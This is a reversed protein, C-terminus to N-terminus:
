FLWNLLEEKKNKFEKIGPKYYKEFEFFKIFDGKKKEFEPTFFFIKNKYEEKIETNDLLTYYTYFLINFINNKYNSFEINKYNGLKIGIVKDVNKKLLIEYPIDEKIGGDVFYKEEIEYPPLIGPISISAMIADILPGEKFYIKTRDNLNTAVIILPIKLDNFTKDGFFNEKFYKKIKEGKLISKLPNNFDLLGLWNKRNMEKIKKKLGDLDEYLAYYAGIIAGVSSGSIYSITIKDEKEKFLEDLKELIAIASYGRVAGSGIAIGIKIKRKKFLM